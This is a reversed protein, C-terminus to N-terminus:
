IPCFSEMPMYGHPNKQPTDTDGKSSMLQGDVACDANGDELEHHFRSNSNQGHM